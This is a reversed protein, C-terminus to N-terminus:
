ININHLHLSISLRILNLEEIFKQVSQLIALQRSFLCKFHGVNAHESVKKNDHSKKNRRLEHAYDRAKDMCM